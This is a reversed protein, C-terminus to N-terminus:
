SEENNSMESDKDDSSDTVDDKGNDNEHDMKLSVGPNLPHMWDLVMPLPLLLNHHVTTKIESTQNELTYVSTDKHPQNVVVYIDDEWVHAIMHREQFSTCKVLVETVPTLFETAKKAHGKCYYKKKKQGAERIKRSATDYATQFTEQQSRIFNYADDDLTIGMAVDIPLRPQQGFIM